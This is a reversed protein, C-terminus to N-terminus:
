FFIQRFNFKGPLHKKDSGIFRLNRAKILVITLREAGPLYTMSFMLDGIYNEKLM